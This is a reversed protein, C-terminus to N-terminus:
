VFYVLSGVAPNLEAIECVATLCSWQSIIQNWVIFDACKCEDYVYLLLFCYFKFM